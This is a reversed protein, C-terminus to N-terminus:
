GGAQRSGFPATAVFVDHNMAAYRDGDLEFARAILERDQDTLDYGRKSRCRIEFVRLWDAETL